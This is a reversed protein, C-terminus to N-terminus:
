RSIRVSKLYSDLDGYLSLMMAIKSDYLRIYPKSKKGEVKNVGLYYPCRMKKGLDIMYSHYSSEAKPTFEYQYFEIEAVRFHMDGRESLRLVDSHPGTFWWTTMAEDKTQEFGNPLQKVVIETITEKYSLKIMQIFKQAM